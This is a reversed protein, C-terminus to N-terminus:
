EYNYIHYQSGTFQEKSGQPSFVHGTSCRLGATEEDTANAVKFFAPDIKLDLGNPPAGSQQSAVSCAPPM